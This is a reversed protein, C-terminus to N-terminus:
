TDNNIPIPNGESCSDFAVEQYYQDGDKWLQYSPAVYTVTNTDNMNVTMTVPSCPFVASGNPELDAIYFGFTYHGIFPLPNSGSTDFTFTACKRSGVCVQQTFVHNWPDVVFVDIFGSVGEPLCDPCFTFVLSAEECFDCIGTAGTAGTLGTAGIGTAGTPGTPGVVTNTEGQAGLAGTPGIPGLSGSSGEHGHKHWAAGVAAGAAAGVAIAGITVWTRGCCISSAPEECCEEQSEDTYTMEEPYVVEQAFSAEPLTVMSFTTCFGTIVASISRLNFLTKM